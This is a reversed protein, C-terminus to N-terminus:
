LNICKEVARLEGEKKVPEGAIRADAEKVLRMMFENVQEPPVKNHELIDKSVMQELKAEIARGRKSLHVGKKHKKHKKKKKKREKKDKKSKSKGM